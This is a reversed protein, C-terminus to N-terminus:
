LRREVVRACLSGVSGAGLGAGRMSAQEGAGPTPRARTSLARMRTFLVFGGIWLALSM